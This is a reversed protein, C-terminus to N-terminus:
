QEIGVSADTVKRAIKQWSVWDSLIIMSTFDKRDSPGPSSGTQRQIHGGAQQWWQQLQSFAATGWIPLPPPHADAGGSSSVQYSCWGPICGLSPGPATLSVFEPRNQLRFASSNSLTSHLEKANPERTNASEESSWDQLTDIIPFNRYWCNAKEGLNRHMIYMCFISPLRICFLLLSQKKEYFYVTGM